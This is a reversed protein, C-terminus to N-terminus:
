SCSSCSIKKKNRMAESLGFSSVRQQMQIGGNVRGETSNQKGKLKNFRTSYIVGKM